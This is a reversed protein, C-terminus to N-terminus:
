LLVDWIILCPIMLEGRREEGGIALWRAYTRERERNKKKENCGEVNLVMEIVLKHMLFVWGVLIERGKRVQSKTSVHRLSGTGKREKICLKMKQPLKSYELGNLELWKSM